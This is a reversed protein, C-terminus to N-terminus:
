VLAPINNISGMPVYKLSIKTSIRVYENISFGNSCTTQFTGAM